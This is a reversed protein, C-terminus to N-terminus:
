TKRSLWLLLGKPKSHNTKQKFNTIVAQKVHAPINFNNEADDKVRRREDQFAKIWRQKIVATKSVLLYWKDKHTDHLKWANRVTVNYQSDRGDPINYVRCGDMDIRGKYCFSSKKLLDKKCYILQHDFLFFYREQSWGAHNIKNLEGSYILESSDVLIDPGEWDDVLLQWAALKEISEMKRKRENILTAIKKMAELAAQVYPYDPHDAPTFKFLEALQLHYKCIKQVPTLLFGELPIEIMEQLLRCAEFFHRYRKNRYLERLEDCAAPHNNCYDSYMEFGKVKELFCQGIESLHPKEPNVCRQLSDLLQTAFLYIDEINSFIVTVKEVPFMEPRKRAQKVYGEVVDKLHKVYDREASLIENVVNARAQNKDLHSPTVMLNGSREPVVMEEKEAMLYSLEDEMIDQNVRLRVYNTPFWGERGDLVGFWWYKNSADTVCILDGARFGLEDPDMTVHDWLAEAYTLNNEYMQDLAALMAHSSRTSLSKEPYEVSYESEDSSEDGGSQQSTISQADSSILSFYHKKRSLKDLNDPMSCAQKLNSFVQLNKCPKVAPKEAHLTIPQPTSLRRFKALKATLVDRDGRSTRRLEVLSQVSEGSNMAMVDSSSSAASMMPAASVAGGVGSSINALSNAGVIVARRSELSHCGGEDSEDDEEVDMDADEEVEEEESDGNELGEDIDSKPRPRKRLKGAEKRYKVGGPDMVQELLDAWRVTIDSKPREAVPSPSKSKRLKVTTQMSETSSTVIVDNQIGSDNSNSSTIEGKDANSSSSSVRTSSSQSGEDERSPRRRGGQPSSTLTQYICPSLRDNPSAPSPVLTREGEASMDMIGPSFSRPTLADDSSQFEQSSFDYESFSDGSLRSGGTYRVRGSSSRVRRHVVPGYDATPTRDNDDYAISHQLSSLSSSNSLPTKPSRSMSSSPSLSEPHEINLLDDQHNDSEGINTLVRRHSVNLVSGSESGNPYSASHLIDQEDSTKKGSMDSSNKRKFIGRFSMKRTLSSDRPDRKNPSTPTASSNSALSLSSASLDDKSPKSTSLSLAKDSASGKRKKLMRQIFGPGKTRTKHSSDERSHRQDDFGSDCLETNDLDRPESRKYTENLTLDSGMAETFSNNRKLTSGERGDRGHGSGLEGHGSDVGDSHSVLSQHSKSYSRLLQGEDASNPRNGKQRRRPLSLFIPAGARTRRNIDGGGEDWRNYDLQQADSIGQELLMLIEARMNGDQDYLDENVEKLSSPLNSRQCTDPGQEVEEDEAPGAEQKDSPAGVTVFHGDKYMIKVDGYSLGGSPLSLSRRASKKKAQPRVPSRSARVREKCDDSAQLHEPDHSSLAVEQSGHVEEIESIGALIPKEEPTWLRRSARLNKDGDHTDWVSVSILKASQLNRRSRPSIMAQDEASPTISDGPAPLLADKSEFHLTVGETPLGSQNKSASDLLQIYPQDQQIKKFMTMSKFLSAGSGDSASSSSLLVDATSTSTRIVESSLSPKGSTELVDQSKNTAIESSAISSAKGFASVPSLVIVPSPPLTKEPMSPPKWSSSILSTPKKAKMDIVPPPIAPKQDPSCTSKEATITSKLSTPSSASSTVTRQNNDLHDNSDLAISSSNEVNPESEVLTENRALARQHLTPSCSAGFQDAKPKGETCGRLITNDKKTTLLYQQDRGRQLHSRHPTAAISKQFRKLSEAVTPWTYKKSKQEEGEEKKDGENNTENAKESKEAGVFDGGDGSPAMDADVKSNEDSESVSAHSSRSDSTKYKQCTNVDVQSSESNAEPNKVNSESNTNLVGPNDKRFPADKDSIANALEQAATSSNLDLRDQEIAPGLSDSTEKIIDLQDLKTMEDHDHEFAATNDCTRTSVTSTDCVYSTNNLDDNNGAPRFKDIPVKQQADSTGVVRELSCENEVGGEILSPRHKSKEGNDGTIDFNDGKIINGSGSNVGKANSLDIEPHAGDPSICVLKATDPTATDYVSSGPHGRSDTQQDSVALRQDVDEYIELDREQPTQHPEQEFSISEAVRATRESTSCNSSESVSISDNRRSPSRTFTVASVDSTSITDTSHDVHQDCISIKKVVSNIDEQQLKPEDLGLSSVNTSVSDQTNLVDSVSGVRSDLQNEDEGSTERSKGIDLYTLTDNQPTLTNNDISKEAEVTNVQEFHSYQDGQINRPLCHSFPEDTAATQSTELSTVSAQFEDSIESNVQGNEDLYVKKWIGADGRAWKYKRQPTPSLPATLPTPNEETGSMKVKLTERIAVVRSKKIMSKWKKVVRVGREKESDVQPPAAEQPRPALPKVEEALPLPSKPRIVETTDKSIKSLLECVKELIFPSKEKPPHDPHPSPSLYKHADPSAEAKPPSCMNLANWRQLLSSCNIGKARPDSEETLTTEGSILAQHLVFDQRSSAVIENQKEVYVSTILSKKFSPDTAPTNPDDSSRSIDIIVPCQKPNDYLETRDVYNGHKRDVDIQKSLWGAEGDFLFVPDCQSRGDVGDGASGESSLKRSLRLSQLLQLPLNPKPATPPSKISGLLQKQQLCHEPFTNSKTLSQVCTEHVSNSSLSPSLSPALSTRVESDTRRLCPAFSKGSTSYDTCVEHKSHVSVVGIHASSIGGSNSRNYGIDKSHTTDIARNDLRYDMTDHISVKSDVCLNIGSSGRHGHQDDSLPSVSDAKSDHFVSDVSKVAPENITHVTRHTDVSLPFSDEDDAFALTETDVSSDITNSVVDLRPASTERKFVPPESGSLFERSNDLYEQGSGARSTIEISSARHKCTEESRPSDSTTLSEGHSSHIQENGSTHYDPPYNIGSLLQHDKEFRAPSGGLANGHTPPTNIKSVPVCVAGRDPCLEDLLENKPCKAESVNKIIDHSEVEAKQDVTDSVDEAQSVRKSAINFEPAVIANCIDDDGPSSNNGSALVDVQFEELQILQSFMGKGPPDGGNIYDTSESKIDVGIDTNVTRAVNYGDHIDAKNMDARGSKRSGHKNVSSHHGESMQSNDHCPDSLLYQPSSHRQSTVSEEVAGNDPRLLEEARTGLTEERTINAKLRDEATLSLLPKSAAMSGNVSSVERVSVPMTGAAILIGASASLETQSLLGMEQSNIGAGKCVTTDDTTETYREPLSSDISNDEMELTPSRMDPSKIDSSYGSEFLSTKTIDHSPAATTPINKEGQCSQHDSIQSSMSPSDLPSFTFLSSNTENNTQQACYTHDNSGTDMHKVCHRHETLSPLGSHTKVCTSEGTHLPCLDHSFETNDNALGTELSRSFPVAQTCDESATRFAPDRETKTQGNDVTVGKDRKEKQETPQPLRSNIALGQRQSPITKTAHSEQKDSEVPEFRQNKELRNGKKTTANQQNDQARTIGTNLPATKIKCATKLAHSDKTQSTLTKNSVPGITQQSKPRIINTTNNEIQVDDGNRVIIANSPGISVNQINASTSNIQKIDKPASISNIQKIDKPASTSNIQKIDKPASTSNIQKIDKHAHLKNRQTAPAAVDPKTQSPAPQSRHNRSHTTLDVVITNSYFSPSRSRTGPEPDIKTSSRRPELSFSRSPLMSPAVKNGAIRGQRSRRKDSLSSLSPSSSSSSLATPTASTTEDVYDDAFMIDKLSTLTDFVDTGNAQTTKEASTQEPLSLGPQPTSSTLSSSTTVDNILQCTPDAKKGGANFSSSNLVLQGGTVGFVATLENPASSTSIAPLSLSQLLTGRNDNINTGTQSSESSIGDHSVKRSSVHSVDYDYRSVIAGGHRGSARPTSSFPMTSLVGSDEGYPGCTLVIDEHFEGDRSSSVDQWCEDLNESDSAIMRAMGEGAKSTGCGQFHALEGSPPSAAVMLIDSTASQFSSESCTSESDDEGGVPAGAGINDRGEMLDFTDETLCINDGSSDDDDDDDGDKDDAGTLLADDLATTFASEDEMSYVSVRQGRKDRSYLRESQDGEEAKEERSGSRVESPVLDAGEESSESFSKLPVLKDGQYDRHRSLGASICETEVDDKSLMLSLLEDDSDSVIEAENEDQLSDDNQRAKTFTCKDDSSWHPESESVADRVERTLTYGGMDRLSCNCSDKECNFMHCRGQPSCEMQQESLHNCEDSREEERIWPSGHEISVGCSMENDEQIYDFNVRKLFKLKSAAKESLQDTDSPCYGTDMTHDSPLTLSSVNISEHKSLDNTLSSDISDHSSLNLTKMTVSDDTIPITHSLTCISDSSNSVSQTMNENQIDKYINPQGTSVELTQGQQQKTYGIHQDQLLSSIRASHDCQIYTTDMTQSHGDGQSNNIGINVTSCVCVVINRRADVRAHEEDARKVCKQVSGGEPVRGGEEKKTDEENRQARRESRAEEGLEGVEGIAADMPTVGGTERELSSPSPTVQAPGALANEGGLGPHIHFPTCSEPQYDVPAPHADPVRVLEGGPLLEDAASLSSGGDDKEDKVCDSVRASSSGDSSSPQKNHVVGRSYMLSEGSLLPSIEQGFVNDKASTLNEDIDQVGAYVISPVQSTEFMPGATESNIDAQGSEMAKDTEDLAQSEKRSFDNINGELVNEVKAIRFLVETDSNEKISILGRHESKDRRQEASDSPGSVPCAHEAEKQSGRNGAQLNPVTGEKKVGEKRAEDAIVRSPAPAASKEQTIERGRSILIKAQKGSNTSKKAPLAKGSSVPLPGPVASPLTITGRKAPGKTSTNRSDGNSSQRNGHLPKNKVGVQNIVVPATANVRPRSASAKTQKPESPSTKKARGQSTLSVTSLHSRDSKVSSTDDDFRSDVSSERTSAASSVRSAPRAKIDGVKSAPKRSVGLEVVKASLNSKMFPSATKRPLKSGAKPRNPSITKIADDGPTDTPAGHTHTVSADEHTIEGLVLAGNIDSSSSSRSEVGQFQNVQEGAPLASHSLKHLSRQSSQRDDQGIEKPSEWKTRSNELDKANKGSAITRDTLECKSMEQGNVKAMKVVERSRNKDNNTINRILGSVLEVNRDSPETTNQGVDKISMADHSNIAGTEETGSMVHNQPDIPWLTIPEVKGKPETSTIQMESSNIVEPKGGRTTEKRRDPAAQGSAGNKTVKRKLATVNQRQTHAVPKNGEKQSLSSPNRLKTQKLSSTEKHSAQTRHKSVPLFSPSRNLALRIHEASRFPTMPPASPQSTAKKPTSASLHTATDHNEPSSKRSLSETAPSKRNTLVPSASGSKSRSHLPPGVKTHDYPSLSKCRAERLADCSPALTNFESLTEIKPSLPESRSPSTVPSLVDPYSTVGLISLRKKTRPSRMNADPDSCINEKRSAKRLLPSIVGSKQQDSDIACIAESDGSHKPRKSNNKGTPQSSVTKTRTDTHQAESQKARGVKSSAPSKMKSMQSQTLRLFGLTLHVKTPAEGTPPSGQEREVTTESDGLSSSHKSDECTKSSTLKARQSARTAKPSELKKKVQKAQVVKKVSPAEMAKSANLHILGDARSSSNTHSLSSKRSSIAESLTQANGGAATGRAIGFSSWPEHNVHISTPSKLQRLVSARTQRVKVKRLSFNDGSSLILPVRGKSTKTDQSISGCKTSTVTQHVCTNQLEHCDSEAIQFRYRPVNIPFENSNGGNSAEGQGEFVNQSPIEGQSINVDRKSFNSLHFTRLPCSVIGTTHRGRTAGTRVNSIRRACNKNTNHPGSRSLTEGGYKDSNDSCDKRDVAIFGSRKARKSETEECASGIDGLPLRKPRKFGARKVESSRDSTKLSRKQRPAVRDHVQLDSSDIVPLKSTEFCNSNVGKAELCHRESQGQERIKDQLDQGINTKVTLRDETAAACNAPDDIVKEGKDAGDRHPLCASQDEVPLLNARSSFDGNEEDHGKNDLLWYVGGSYSAETLTPQEKLPSTELTLGHSKGEVRAVSEVHALNTEPTCVQSEQPVSAFHVDSPQGRTVDSVRTDESISSRDNHRPSYLPHLDSPPRDNNTSCLCDESLKLDTNEDILEPECPPSSSPGAQTRESDKQVQTEIVEGLYHIGSQHTADYGSTFFDSSILGPVIIDETDPEHSYGYARAAGFDLTGSHNGQFDRAPVCLGSRSSNLVEEGTLASRTTATSVQSVSEQSSHLCLRNGLLICSCLVECHCSPKLSQASGDIDDCIFSDSPSNWSIREHTFSDVAALDLIQDRVSEDTFDSTFVKVSEDGSSVCRENRSGSNLSQIDAGNNKNPNYNITPGFEVLAVGQDTQPTKGAEGDRSLTVISVDVAQRGPNLDPTSTKPNSEEVILPSLSPVVGATFERAISRKSDDAPPRQTSPRRGKCGRKSRALRQSNNQGVEYSSSRFYFLLSEKVKINTPTKAGHGPPIPHSPRAERHILRQGTESSDSKLYLERALSSLSNGAKDGNVPPCTQGDSCLPRIGEKAASNFAARTVLLDQANRDPKTYINNDDPSPVTKLSRTGLTVEGATVVSPVPERLRISSVQVRNDRSNQLTQSSPPPAPSHLFLPSSFSTGPSAFHVKVAVPAPTSFSSLSYKEKQDLIHPPLPRHPHSPSHPLYNDVESSREQCRQPPMHVQACWKSNENLGGNGRQSAM